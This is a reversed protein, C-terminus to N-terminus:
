PVALRKGGAVYLEIGVLAPEPGEAVEYDLEEGVLDALQARAAGPDPAQFRARVIDGAGSPHDAPAQAPHLGVPVHWEILFPLVSPEANAMLEQAHWELVSGDPRTRSGRTVPPLEWGRRRFHDRARSLDDTRAAWTVFPRGAAALEGIRRNRPAAAAKAEDVVAILEIYTRGLPIIRNATGGPHVGGALSALGYTDLFHRGAADLDLVPVLVHDLQALPRRGSAGGESGIM